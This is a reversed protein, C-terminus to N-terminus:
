TCYRLAIAFLVPSIDSPEAEQKRAWLIPYYDEARVIKPLYWPFLYSIVGNVTFYQKM